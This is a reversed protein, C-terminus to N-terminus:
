SKSKLFDIALAASWSFNDIGAGLGTTPDFYEYFGNKRVLELSIKTLAEAHEKFGYRKLGDIILWNTNIWTPGQWYGRPKFWSSNAPVSPVPYPLGFLLHNELMRVLESAREKSICGSYLPMLAAISPVKILRHTVFDRCYYQGDYPDWLQDFTEITKNMQEELDKPLKEKITDAIEKLHENARIFISNFTLDEILFLSHDLVKNIEYNKRRLRIQADFLVLLEINSFRENAPVIKTDRRFFDMVWDLHTNKILRIWWPYLHEHLASMWPPTNELGTEWPHIQLVLGEKHPDRENYLWLHYALIAPYVRRYWSRRDALGMKEGIRVVAEALMPPQTIGSTSIHDPSFANVQSRWLDRDNAYEKENSFIINPLMGNSWQGRLISLIESQAREIDYHRIGIAIFCSDWLWQHPYLRNSPVTYLGRDHTSLVERASDFISDESESTGKSSAEMGSTYRM